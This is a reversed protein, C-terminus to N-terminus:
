IGENEDTIEEMPKNCCLLEGGGVEVLEVENGCVVCRFCQGLDKELAM